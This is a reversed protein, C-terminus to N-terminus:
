IINDDICIEFIMFIFLVYILYRGEKVVVGNKEVDYIVWFFM